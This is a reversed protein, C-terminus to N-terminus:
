TLESLAREFQAVARHLSEVVDQAAAGGAHPGDRGDDPPPAAALPALLARDRTGPSPDFYPSQRRDPGFRRDVAEFFAANTLGGRGALAERLVAVGHGTFDGQGNSEWALENPQCASFTVDRAVAASRSSGRRAKLDRVFARMAPTPQLTRPRHDAGPELALRTISGSHCCDVFCTLNVGEALGAFVERVEDDLVVAGTHVDAPCFAEDRADDEDGTEDVIRTGHGAFQFVLVDGPRGSAVLGRLRALIADRTAEGDLMTDVDFGQGRLVSAWTEADAVCGNLPQRQYANIGVCLARRRGGRGPPAAGDGSVAPAPVSLDPLPPAAFAPPAPRLHPAPSTLGAALLLARVEDPLPEEAEWDPVARPAERPFPPVAEGDEAGVVRRLVAEMTPADDDFGGHTTARTASRGAEADTPSLVLDATGAGAGGLGFLRRLDDDARLSEELGLIPEPREWELANRILYLLSKRYVGGVTDGLEFDKRMTFVTLHDVGAGLLPVVRDEFEDVRVAPALYHASAFGPVGLDLATPVFHGHFVSGASHGVAHLRVEGGALAQHYRGTFDRLREAVLRAGGGPASGRAANAKMGGWVRAGVKGIRLAAEVVRDGIAGRPAAELARSQGRLLQRITSMLDTEWVFYVPFVDPRETWWQVHTYTKELAAAESTLGGHAYFVVQLPRGVARARKLAAPVHEDFIARVDAATTQYAGSESLRGNTLNVVHPRLADLMEPTLRPGGAGGGRAGDGGFLAFAHERSMRHEPLEADAPDDPLGGRAGDVLARLTDRVALAESGFLAPPAAGDGAEAAAIAAHAARVAAVVDDRDLSTGPCSKSSMQNHFRLAEPGLGFRRQVHAVAAITAERQAGEFPDRGADFDGIVEIMFPGDAATGNYGAASAPARNWDRGTWLRGGSDVTLHQAIDSWGLTETHYRAMAEVSALGRDQDHNPRWTHHLHVERVRRTFPFDALLVALEDPSHLGHYPAPM